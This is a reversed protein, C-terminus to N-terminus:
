FCCQLPEKFGRLANHIARYFTHPQKRKRNPDDKYEGVRHLHKRFHGDETILAVARRIEVKGLKLLSRSLTHKSRFGTEQSTELNIDIRLGHKSRPERLVYVSVLWPNRTM